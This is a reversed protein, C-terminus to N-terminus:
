EVQKNSFSSWKLKRIGAPEKFATEDLVSSRNMCCVAQGSNKGGKFLEPFSYGRCWKEKQSFRHKENGSSLKTWLVLVV